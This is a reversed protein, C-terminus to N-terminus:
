RLRGYVIKLRALDESNVGTPLERDEIRLILVQAVTLLQDGIDAIDGPKAIRELDVACEGDAIADM